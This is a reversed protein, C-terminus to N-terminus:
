YTIGFRHNFQMYFAIAFDEVQSTLLGSTDAMDLGHHAAYAKRPGLTDMTFQLDRLQEDTFNYDTMDFDQINM